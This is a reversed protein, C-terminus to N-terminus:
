WKGFCDRGAFLMRTRYVSSNNWSHATPLRPSFASYDPAADKIWYWFWQGRRIPAPQLEWSEIPIYRDLWESKKQTLKTQDLSLKLYSVLMTHINFSFIRPFQYLQHTVKCLKIILALINKWISVWLEYSKMGKHKAKFFDIDIPHKSATYLSVRPKAPYM